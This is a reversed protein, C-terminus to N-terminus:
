SRLTTANQLELLRKRARELTACSWTTKGWDRPSPYAEVAPSINGNPMKRSPRHRIRVAEYSILRGRPSSQKYIAYDGDREVLDLDFGDSKFHAPLKGNDNSDRKM